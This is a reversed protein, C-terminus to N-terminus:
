LVVNREYGLYQNEKANWLRKRYMFYFIKKGYKKNLKEAYEVGYESLDEDFDCIEKDSAKCDGLLTFYLNKSKNILYFTELTDFMSKIKKRDGIITPIVVMTASEEPIGKSYDLKPLVSPTVNSVLFQNIIKLVFQSVPIFLIIFGLVRIGIFYKSIFFTILVTFIILSLFYIIFRGNKKNNELLLFSLDVEEASAKEILENLYQLEDKRHKKSLKLLRRRYLAKTEDTCLPYIDDKLFLKEEFSVKELLSNSNIEFFEKLDNFINSVIMDNEIRAQYQDNIIEKLSVEKSELLENLDKFLRNCNGGLDRLQNNLEFIYYNNNGFTFDSDIFDSIQIEDADKNKIVTSINEKDILKNFEQYCISNLKDAYVFVMTTIVYNLDFYNFYVDEHSKQYNNLEECLIKFNINYNYKTAIDKLIPYMKNISKKNKRVNHIDFKINNKHEVLLYFNDIVWENIIGVYEYKKTKNVLFNYYENIEKFNNKFKKLLRNM